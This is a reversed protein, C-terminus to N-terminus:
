LELEEIAFQLGRFDALASDVACGHAALGAARDSPALPSYSFVGGRGCDIHLGVLCDSHFFYGGARHRSVDAMGRWRRLCNGVMWLDPLAGAAASYIRGGAFHHNRVHHGGWIGGHTGITVYLGCM